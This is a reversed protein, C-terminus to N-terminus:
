KAPAPLTSRAVFESGYYTIQGFLSYDITISYDNKAPLQQYAFPLNTKPDKPLEKLFDPTLEDLNAPYAGHNTKYEELSKYIIGINQTRQVDLQISPAFYIALSALVAAFFLGVGAFTAFLYRYSKNATVPLTGRINKIHRFIVFLYVTWLWGIVVMVIKQAEKPISIATLIISILFYSVVVISIFKLIPGAFGRTYERSKVLASLGTENEAIVLLAAFSFWFLFLLGPLFLFFGVIIAVTQIVMVWLFAFTKRKGRDLIGTFSIKDQSNVIAHLASAQIWANLLILGFGLFICGCAIVSAPVNAVIGIRLLVSALILILIIILWQLLSLGLLIFLRKKYIAFSEKLLAIAGPMQENNGSVAAMGDISANTTQEM